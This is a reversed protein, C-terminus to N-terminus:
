HVEHHATKAYEEILKQQLEAPVTAYDAFRQTHKARGQTLSRLTSSYKYLEALPVRASIKQYHGDADIGMIIARRTQLDGMVDGMTEGSCMVEVDYIPELLQPNADQFGQKFAMTGALKFAMDNSDVAHMKGDYVSVRVDRVYSGTLPGNTMKEMIGKVIASMYKTDISGGVICNLFVLKGGWDLDHVQTDRVNFGSPNPMGEYYPEILMHVEGFQGAGGSQKKHRYQSQASKRITERYSIRPKDFNVKVKYLNELEWKAINLHLEGQGHLLAQQLEHSYEYIITNDSEHLRHLAQTVKDMDNKNETTIAVTIRPAPFQIPFIHFPHDREYLTSNTITGKLKVSAGIDGAKLSTVATRNKGNLIYLQAVRETIDSKSNVLEQGIRVEGSCVKFLSMDGLHPESITKFVFLCVPGSPDCDLTKGSERKAPPMDQASPAIDHIFGLIRGSGMDRKASCCFVPFLDHHIMALKFGEALEEESLEGKDFYAEMLKDDHVAVAEVLTNHLENARQRETDPIPLKEPKGGNPGFKYMTMKLVDIIANFGVGENLPYQVLTVKDGFRERAQNFTAEFDSKEGDVQNIVFMMPTEFQETYEWIIESGVEVGSQANLVMLGTDAVRLASIIEGVFDDFGPTDLLNIKNDKWALHLLSGFVSNGRQREIEHYDSVTNQEEVSGRRTIEGAEFLMAETLTTKGSGAHGLIAVNKIKQTDFVKM